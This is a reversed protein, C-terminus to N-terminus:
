SLVGGGVRVWGNRGREKRCGGGGGGGFEMEGSAVSCEIVMVVCFGWRNELNYMM